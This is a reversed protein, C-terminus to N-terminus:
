YEGELLTLLRSHTVWFISTHLRSTLTKESDNKLLIVAALNALLGIVAVTFMIIGHIPEPNMLRKWVEIFLFISIGILVTGNILAALIEVLKYGFTLQYNAEKKGAKHAIYPIFVAIGDSLNHLADSFLALSDSAIGGIVEAITIILNLITAFLLRSSKITTTLIIDSM